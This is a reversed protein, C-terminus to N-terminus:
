FDEISCMVVRDERRIDVHGCVPCKKSELGETPFMDGCSSCKFCEVTSATARTSEKVFQKATHQEVKKTDIV